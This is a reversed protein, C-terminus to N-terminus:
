YKTERFKVLQELEPYDAVLQRAIYPSHNNNIKYQEDEPLFDCEWRVRQLLQMASFCKGRSLKELAFRVFMRYVSPHDTIWMQAKLRLDEQTPNNRRAPEIRPPETIPPGTFLDPELPKRTM